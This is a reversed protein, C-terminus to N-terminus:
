EDVEEINIIWRGHRAVKSTQEMWVQHAPLLIPTELQAYLAELHKSALTAVEPWCQHGQMKKHVAKMNSFTGAGLTDVLAEALATAGLVDIASDLLSNIAEAQSTRRCVGIPRGEGEDMEQGVLEYYVPDLAQGERIKGTDLVIWRSLNQELALKNWERRQEQNKPIFQALTFGCDLASYIAGSGRWAGSDGRYWDHQKTRDKPTHHAYMVAAGSLNSILLFAKTLLAASAASNEDMADSLTVYPDFIILKVQHRLAEAVVKAINDEDLEGTGIENMAVLRLMGDDKGRVVIPHENSTDGHQLAVAKVRRQIDEVREENAIWLSGAGADVQPLGLRSTDSAALGAVLSALWRTKGVNSTGGLSVTSGEPIMDPIVWTLPEIRLARLDALTTAIFESTSPTAEPGSGSSPANQLAEVKSKIDGLSTERQPGIPRALADQMGGIDVLSEAPDMIAALEPTIDTPMLKVFASDVLETIKSYREMWDGYRAHKDSAAYSDQMITQLIEIIGGKTFPKGDPGTRLPLRWSLTRLSGYFDEATKIRRVLEDDDVDSFSEHPLTGSGGKDKMADRLLELPFDRPLCSVEVTYGGTPPWCVYGTGVAKIEIGERLTAPFKISDGPHKFFIHLGGSRTRHWLTKGLYHMNDEVWQKLEEPYKYLDVDLCMLGSMSGMPVAIENARPHSFLDKVVKPTQSALKFGGEGRGVPKGTLEAWAKNSWTPRKEDTPFVPLKKAVELAAKVIDKM